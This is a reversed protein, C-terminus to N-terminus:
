TSERANMPLAFSFRSGQGWVSEVWIRGGLMEVLRKSISLGLGTGEHRRDLGTEIQSFPVFLRKQDEDKIGPGTDSVSLVARDDTTTAKLYVGGQETFKVGNSLLNLLVQEVRRRDSVIHDISPAIDVELRLGKKEAQPRVVEAVKELSQRLDFREVVLQLQGAEIKSLDLVDNILALLHEASSCVMGMQKAQEANLPGALGQRLIGSFGIISNLPTRLEHSMTALFVSKLRDASEAREKAQELERTRERVRVELTRNAETLERNQTEITQLMKNFSEVLQGIEDETEAVARLSYDGEQAIRRATAALTVIPRSVIKQLRTSLLLAALGAGVVIAALILLNRRWARELGEPSAQVATGGVWQDESLIPEQVWLSDPALRQLRERAPAPCDAPTAGPAVFSAFLSGDARRICANKVAPEVQLAALNQQALEPDDFLLAASSREAALTTLVTINRLLTQRMNRLDYFALMAGALMLGAFASAMAVLVMKRSISVRFFMKASARM